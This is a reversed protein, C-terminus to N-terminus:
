NLLQWEFQKDDGIDDSQDEIKDEVWNDQFKAVIVLLPICLASSGFTMFLGGLIKGKWTVPVIDGYGVTFLTQIAWYIGAPVTIFGEDYDKNNEIQYMLSGGIVVITSVCLIMTWMDGMCSVFIKGALAIRKNYRSFRLMRGLRVIRLMKLPKFKYLGDKSVALIVFYPIVAAIDIWVMKGHFFRYRDPASLASLVFEILFFTNLALDFISWPNEEYVDSVVDLEPISRLCASIISLVVAMLSILSFWKALPSTVPNQLVDWVCSRLSKREEHTMAEEKDEIMIKFDQPKASEIAAESIEYFQCEKVFLDFPVGLPCRLIGGSQYFFLIADFFVRSRDFFYADSSPIYYMILKRPDGLLTKPFRQLTDTHTEYM